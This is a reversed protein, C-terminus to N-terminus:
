ITLGLPVRRKQGSWVFVTHEKLIL